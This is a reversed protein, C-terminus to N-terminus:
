SRHENRFRMVVIDKNAIFAQRVEQGFRCALLSLRDKFDKIPEGTDIPFIGQIKAVWM